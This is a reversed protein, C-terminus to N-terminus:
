PNHALNSQKKDPKKKPSYIQTYRQDLTILNKETKLNELKKRLFTERPDKLLDKLASLLMGNDRIMESTTERTLTAKSLLSLKRNDGVQAIMEM